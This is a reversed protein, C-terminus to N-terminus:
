QESVVKGRHLAVGEQRGVLVDGDVEELVEDSAALLKDASVADVVKTHRLIFAEAYLLEQGLRGLVGVGGDVEWLGLVQLLKRALPYDVDRVGQHSPGKGVPNRGLHCRSVFLENGLSVHADLHVWFNESSELSRSM